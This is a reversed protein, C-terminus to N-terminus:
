FCWSFAGLMLEGFTRTGNTLWFGAGLGVLALAALGFGLRERWATRAPLVAATSQPAQTM